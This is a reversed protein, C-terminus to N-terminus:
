YMGTCGTVTHFSVLMDASIPVLTNVMTNCKSVPMVLINCHYHAQQLVGATPAIRM